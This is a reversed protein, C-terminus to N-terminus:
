QRSKGDTRQRRAVLKQSDRHGCYPCETVRYRAFCRVTFYIIVAPLMPLFCVWWGAARGLVFDQEVFFMLVWCFLLFLCWWGTIAFSHERLREAVPHRTSHRRGMLPILKGCHPCSLAKRSEALVVDLDGPPQEM